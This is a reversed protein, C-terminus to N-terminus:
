KPFVQKFRILILIKFPPGQSCFCGGLPIM